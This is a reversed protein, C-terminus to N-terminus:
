SLIGRPSVGSNDHPSGINRASVVIEEKRGIVDQCTACCQGM